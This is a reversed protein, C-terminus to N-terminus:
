LWVTVVAPVKCTLYLAEAPCQESTCARIRTSPMSRATVPKRDGPWDLANTSTPGTAAPVCTTANCPSPRTLPQLM